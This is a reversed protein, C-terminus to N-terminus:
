ARNRAGLAGRCAAAGRGARDGDRPFLRFAAVAEDRSTWRPQPMRRFGVGSRVLRHEVPNMRFTSRSSGSRDPATTPRPSSSAVAPRRELPRRADVPWARADRAARAGGATEVHAYRAPELWPSDGHGPLDLRSSTCDTPALRAAVLDWWERTRWAATCRPAAALPRASGSSSTSRRLWGRPRRRASSAHRSTSCPARLNGPSTPSQDVGAGM